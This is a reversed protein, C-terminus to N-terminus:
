AYNPRFCATRKRTRADPCLTQKGNKSTKSGKGRGKADSGETDASVRVYVAYELPDPKGPSSAIIVVRNGPELGYVNGGDWYYGGWPDVTPQTIVLPAQGPNPNLVYADLSVKAFLQNVHGFVDVGVTAASFPPGNDIPSAIVPGFLALVAFRQKGGKGKKSTKPKAM